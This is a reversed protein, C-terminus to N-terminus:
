TSEIISVSFYATSHTLSLPCCGVNSAMDDSFSPCQPACSRMEVFCIGMTMAMGKKEGVVLRVINLFSCTGRAVTV